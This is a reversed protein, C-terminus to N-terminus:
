CAHTSSCFGFVKEITFENLPNFRNFRGKKDMMGRYLVSLIFFFFQAFRIFSSIFIFSLCFFIVCAIFRGVSHIFSRHQRDIFSSSSVAFNKVMIIKKGKFLKPAFQIKILIWTIFPYRKLESSSVKIWWLIHATGGGLFTFSHLFFFLLFKGFGINQKNLGQFAIMFLQFPIANIKLKSYSITQPELNLTRHSPTEYVSLHLRKFPVFALIKPIKAHPNSIKFM